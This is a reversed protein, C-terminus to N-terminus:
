MISLKPLDETGSMLGLKSLDYMVISSVSQEGGSVVHSVCLVSYLLFSEIKTSRKGKMLLKTVSLYRLNDVLKM